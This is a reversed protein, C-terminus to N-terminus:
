VVVANFILIKTNFPLFFKVKYCRPLFAYMKKCIYPCHYRFCLKDDLQLGLISFNDVYSINHNIMCVANSFTVNGFLMYKTKSFNIEMDNVACWNKLADSVICFHHLLNSLNQDDLVFTTDDAYLVSKYPIYYSIDNIFLIFFIPGLISGQPM